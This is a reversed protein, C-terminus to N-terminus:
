GKEVIKTENSFEVWCKIEDVLHCIAFKKESAAQPSEPATCQGIPSQMRILYTSFQSDELLVTRSQGNM